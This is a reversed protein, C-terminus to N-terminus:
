ANTFRSQHLVLRYKFACASDKTKSVVSVRAIHSISALAEGRFGFTKMDSLDEFSKLKSTAYRECLLPLDEKDIGSGNDQIIIKKLGGDQIIIQISTAQADVSNEIMEKIANSPRQIVEGAAIRHIVSADLKNIRKM